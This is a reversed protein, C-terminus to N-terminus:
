HQPLQGCEHLTKRLLLGTDDNQFVQVPGILARQCPKKGPSLAASRGSGKHNSGVPKIFQVLRSIKLRCQMVELTNLVKARDSCAPM